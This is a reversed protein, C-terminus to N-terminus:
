KGECTVSFFSLVQSLLTRYPSNPLTIHFYYFDKDESKLMESCDPLKFGGSYITSKVLNDRFLM